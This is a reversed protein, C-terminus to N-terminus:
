YNIFATLTRTNSGLNDQRGRFVLTYYRKQDPVFTNYQYLLNTTGTERVYLTDTQKSTYPMFPTVTAPSINTFVNTNMVKSFVDVNKTAGRAFNGLRVRAATDTVATLNDQVWSYQITTTTDYTFVSYFAGQTLTKAIQLSPQTSTSLTDKVYITTPGPAIAFYNYSISTTGSVGPATGGYAFTAGTLATPVNPCYVYNRAAGVTANVVKVYSYYSSNSIANYPAQDKIDKNCSVIVVGLVFIILISKFYRINM